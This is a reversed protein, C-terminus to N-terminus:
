CTNSDLSPESTDNQEDHIAAKDNFLVYDKDHFAFRRKAKCVKCTTVITTVPM